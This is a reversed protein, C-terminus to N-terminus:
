ILQKKNQFMKVCLLLILHLRQSSIKSTKYTFIYLFNFIAWTIFFPFHPDHNCIIPLSGAFILSFCWCLRFSTDCSLILRHFIPNVLDIHIMKQLVLAIQRQPPQQFLVQISVLTIEWSGEYFARITESLAAFWRRNRAISHFYENFLPTLLGM